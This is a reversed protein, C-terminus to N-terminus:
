ISDASRSSAPLSAISSSVNPASTVSEILSSMVMVRGLTPEIKLAILTVHANLASVVCSQAVRSPFTRATASGASSVVIVRTAVSESPSAVGTVFSNVNVTAAALVENTLAAILAAPSAPM